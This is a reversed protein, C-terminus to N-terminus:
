GVAILMETLEDPMTMMANHGTPIELHNWGDMRRALERSKATNPFVPNTCTIYTAPVGNGLRNKLELRDVFTQFPQPTLKERMLAVWVPDQVGFSAPEGPPISLCGSIEITRERYRDIHGLPTRDSPTEGHDLVMADLYVLHQLREPMRDAVGSIVAGAFSHGVLIVDHLDEFRIVQAIDEIFTKLTPRFPLLHGREGLGTQTPTHVVHGKSRLSDAVARWCWGGHFAGHVLM